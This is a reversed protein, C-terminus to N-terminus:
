DGCAELVSDGRVADLVRGGNSCGAEEAKAGAAVVGAVPGAEELPATPCFM